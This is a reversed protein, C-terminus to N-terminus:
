RKAKKGTSKASTKSKKRGKSASMKGESSPSRDSGAVKKKPAKPKSQTKETSGSDRTLYERLLFIAGVGAAVAAASSVPRNTIASMSPM